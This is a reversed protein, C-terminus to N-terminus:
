PMEKLWSPKINFEIGAFGDQIFSVGTEKSDMGINVEKGAANTYRIWYKAEEQVYPDDESGFDFEEDDYGTSSLSKYGATFGLETYMQVYASTSAKIKASSMDLANGM